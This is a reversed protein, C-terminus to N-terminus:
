NEGSFAWLWINAFRCGSQSIGALAVLGADLQVLPSFEAVLTGNSYVTFTEAQAVVALRNSAGAELSFLPDATAPDAFAVGQQPDPALAAGQWTQLLLPGPEGPGLLLLQQASLQELDDAHWSFGCGTTQDDMLIDATLVFDQVPVAALPSDPQFQQLGPGELLAVPEFWVLLGAAPDVSYLALEADVAAASIEGALPSPPTGIPPPEPTPPAAAALATATVAAAAVETSFAAITAVAQTAAAEATVLLDQASVDEDAAATATQVVARGLAAVTAERDAQPSGTCAVLLWLSLTVLLPPSLPLPPLPSPTHPKGPTTLPKRSCTFIHFPNM